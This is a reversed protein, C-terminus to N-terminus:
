ICRPNRPGQYATHGCWLKCLSNRWKRQLSFEHFLQTVHLNKLSYFTSFKCVAYCKLKVFDPLKSICVCEWATRTQLNCNKLKDVTAYVRKLLFKIRFESLSNCIGTHSELRWFPNFVLTWLFIQLLTIDLEYIYIFGM